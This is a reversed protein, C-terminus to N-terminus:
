KLCIPVFDCTACLFTGSPCSQWCPDVYTQDAVCVGDNKCTGPVYVSGCFASKKYTCSQNSRTGCRGAHCVGQTCQSGPMTCSAGDDNASQWGTAPDCTEKTCPNNDDYPTLCPNGKCSAQLIGNIDIMECGSACHVDPLELYKCSGSASADCYGAPDWKKISSGVCVPTPPSACTRDVGVCSGQQCVDRDTCINGDSCPAGDNPTYYCSGQICEGQAVYCGNPPTTCTVGICSDAKCRGTEEDCGSPCTKPELETYVCKRDVCEGLTSYGASTNEDLCYRPPTICGDKCSVGKVGNGKVVLAFSSLNASDNPFVIEAEIPGESEPAFFIRVSLSAGAEVVEEMGVLSFPGGLLAGEPAYLAMSLDGKNILFVTRTETEGVEVNGFDVVDTSAAFYPPRGVIYDDSCASAILVLSALASLHARRM